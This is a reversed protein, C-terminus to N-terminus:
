RSFNGVLIEGEEKKPEYPGLLFCCIAHWCYLALPFVFFAILDYALYLKFVKLGTIIGDKQFLLEPM